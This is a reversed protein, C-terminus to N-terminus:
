HIIGARLALAVAGTRNHVALKSMLSTVHVKITETSVGLQAGIEKNQLGAAVLELVEHERPSISARPPAFMRGAIVPDVFRGGALVAQVATALLESSAGKDLYGSAGASLAREVDQTRLSASFMITRTRSGIQGLRTVVEIGGLGPMDLDLLAITPDLLEVMHVAAAGDCSEGVVDIGVHELRM